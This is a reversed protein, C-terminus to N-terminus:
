RLRRLTETLLAWTRQVSAIHMRERPTHIETLDPGISVCDLGSLKDALLGCEVGAHIVEVTPAHGCQEAFVEAMLRRLPSDASYEWAPYDGSISFTGGFVASLLELRRLLMEKQSNINSRVCFSARVSDASTTLIGLNLSTQVLGEVERSMEQVGNPACQLLTLARRTIDADMPVGADQGSQASVTIAGDAVAYERRFVEEMRRCAAAARGRNEVVLTACASVPIANDKSGGSVSCLRMTTARGIADLIRGLLVVANARGRNIEIGSHGGTLGSVTIFLSEGTFPERKVPIDIVATAGGACGATFVGEVESDLNILLRGRLDSLDIAAAGIMGTEEDVTLVAELAPHPLAGSELLALIMAVAIGDDGGLTTGEARVYDGDVVLQIADKELDLPCAATKDGVMDLHGQLILAPQNEYGPTAPAKILVNGMEDQRCALGHAKAFQVCYDSLAKEHHSTHPISCIEEFYHFVSAPELNALVGM